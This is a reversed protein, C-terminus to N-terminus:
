GKGRGCEHDEWGDISLAGARGQQNDDSKAFGGSQLRHLCEWKTVAHSWVGIGTGRGQWQSAFLRKTFMRSGRWVGVETSFHFLSQWARPGWDDPVPQETTFTAEM